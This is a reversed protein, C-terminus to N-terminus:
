VKGQQKPTLAYIGSLTLIKDANRDPNELYMAIGYKKLRRYRGMLFGIGPSDMFRVGALDFVARSVGAQADIAEDAARRIQSASHEDLEGSLYIYLADGRRCSQIQM